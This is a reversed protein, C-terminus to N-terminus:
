AKIKRAEKKRQKVAWNPPKSNFSWNRNEYAQQLLKIINPINEPDFGVGDDPLGDAAGRRFYLTIFGGGDVVEYKRWRYHPWNTLRGDKTRYLKQVMPKAQEGEPHSKPSMHYGEQKEEKKKREHYADMDEVKIAGKFREWALAKALRAVNQKTAGLEEHGFVQLMSPGGHKMWLIAHLERKFGIVIFKYCSDGFTGPEYYWANAKTEKVAKHLRRHFLGLKFLPGAWSDPAFLASSDLEVMWGKYDHSM